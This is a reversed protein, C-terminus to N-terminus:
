VLVRKPVHPSFVNEQPVKAEMTIRLLSCNEIDKVWGCQICAEYEGYQDKTLEVDGHCRPCAKLFLM